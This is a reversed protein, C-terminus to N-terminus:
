RRKKNKVEMYENFSSLFKSADKRDNEKNDSGHLGSFDKLKILYTKVEEDDFELKGTMMEYLRCSEPGTFRTNISTLLEKLKVEM